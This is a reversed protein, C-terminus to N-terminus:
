KRDWVKILYPKLAEFTQAQEEIIKEAEQTNMDKTRNIFSAVRAYYLPRMIDVLHKRDKRWRHFMATFDYVIKAWDETSMHFNEINRKRILEKLVAFSQPNIIKEWLAWLNQFGEKFNEVMGPLDVSFAEPEEPDPKGYVPVPRSGTVKKWKDANKEM